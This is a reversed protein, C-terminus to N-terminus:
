KKSNKKFQQTIDRNHEDFVKFTDKDSIIRAVGKHSVATTKAKIGKKQFIVKFVKKKKKGHMVEEAMPQPSVYGRWELSNPDLATKAREQAIASNLFGLQYTTTRELEAQQAHLKRREAPTLQKGSDDTEPDQPPTQQGGGAANAAADQAWEGAASGAAGGVYSGGPIGTASGIRQGAAGGLSGGVNELIYIFVEEPTNHEMITQVDETLDIQKVEGRDFFHMVSLEALIEREEPTVTIDFSEEFVDISHLIVAALDEQLSQIEPSQTNVISNVTNILSNQTSKDM